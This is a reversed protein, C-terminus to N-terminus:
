KKLMREAYELSKGDIVISKIAKLMKVPDEHQWVNRGIALGSAGAQMAEKANKLADKAPAKPGGLSLVRCKGAAKVAKKFSEVTGSYYTKVMDAGSELGFRAAYAIIEPTLKKVAKGRPYVWAIVIMGREHAEEEIKGFEKLMEPEYESGLYVTYGVGAAGLKAAEKVSCNQVSIPEGKRLNTKGNLKIILPVDRKKDYYKEATGKQVAITTAGGKKAIDFIYRPDANKDSFDSTGHEMGHDYALILTKGKKSIKGLNVKM